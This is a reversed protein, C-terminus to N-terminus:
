LRRERRKVVSSIGAAALSGAMLALLTRVNSNDGTAVKTEKATDIKSKVPSSPTGSDPKIGPDPETGPKTEERRIGAVAFARNSYDSNTLDTVTTEYWTGEGTAGHDKSRKLPTSAFNGDPEIQYLRFGDAEYAAADPIAFSLVLGSDADNPVDRRKEPDKDDLSLPNAPVLLRIRCAGLVEGGKSLQSYIRERVNDQLSYDSAYVAAGPYIMGSLAVKGTTVTQQMPEVDPLYLRTCIYRAHLILTDGDDPPEALEYVQKLNNRDSPDTGEKYWGAFVAASDYTVGSVTCTQNNAPAVIHKEFKNITYSDPYNEPDENKLWGEWMEDDVNLGDTDLVYKIKYARLKVLRAYLTIDTGKNEDSLDKPILAVGDRKVGAIARDQDEYWGEFQYGDRSLGLPDILLGDGPDDSDYAAPNYVAPNTNIKDLKTKEDGAAVYRDSGDEPFILYEYSIKCETGKAAEEAKVDTCLFTCFLLLVVASIVAKGCKKM